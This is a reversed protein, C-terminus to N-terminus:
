KKLDHLEAIYGGPFQVIATDRDGVDFPAFLVTAGAAKAKDLTEGLNKVEYGTLEHAFPYPLHGDTVMVQMKGFTSEIRIRRYTEGSRGIEGANAKRDDSVIRGHSFRLFSHVFADARDRSVYVRNDPVTELPGYSPATFHWYLQLKVGGPFQIVADLGIPDKFPEVIVEAGAARAAKIAQDMDTVLYGNREYGFPYPIPTEFAFTSLNGVPTWVYQAQTSSPVPLVNATIRPSPKGGFTAIISNVFTDYDAPAIYVHTTDYQAAVAVGAAATGGKAQAPAALTFLLAAAALAGLPIRLFRM